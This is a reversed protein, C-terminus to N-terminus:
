GLTVRGVTSTGGRWVRVPTELPWSPPLSPLRFKRAPHLPTPIHPVTQVPAHIRCRCTPGMPGVDARHYTSGRARGQMIRMTSCALSRATIDTEVQVHRGHYCPAGFCFAPERELQAELPQHVVLQVCEGVCEYTGTRFCSGCQTVPPFYSATCGTRCMGLKALDPAHNAVHM